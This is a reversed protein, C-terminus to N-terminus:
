NLLDKKWKWKWKSKSKKIKKKSKVSCFCGCYKNNFIVDLYVYVVVM